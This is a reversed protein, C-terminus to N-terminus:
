AVFISPKKATKKTEIEIEQRNILPLQSVPKFGGNIQPQIVHEAQERVITERATSTLREFPVAAQNKLEAITVVPPKEAIIRAITVQAVEETELDSNALRDVEQSVAPAEFALVNDGSPADIEDLTLAASRVADQPNKVYKAFARGIFEKAKEYRTDLPGEAKKANPEVDYVDWMTQAFPEETAEATKTLRPLLVETETYTEIEEDVDTEEETLMETKTAVVANPATETQQNTEIDPVDVLADLQQHLIAAIEPENQFNEALYTEVEAVLKTDAEAEAIEAQTPVTVEPMASVFSVPPIYAELRLHATQSLITEPQVEPIGLAAIPSIEAVNFNDLTTEPESLPLIEAEKQENKAQYITEFQSADFVNLPGVTDMSFNDANVTYEPLDAFPGSYVAAPERLSDPLTYTEIQPAQPSADLSPMSMIDRMSFGANLSGGTELSLGTSTSPGTSIAAGVSAGDISPAEASM